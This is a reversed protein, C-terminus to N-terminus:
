KQFVDFLQHTQFGFIDLKEFEPNRMLIVTQEGSSETITVGTGRATTKQEIKIEAIDGPGPVFIMVSHVTGKGRLQYTALPASISEGKQSVLGESVTLKEVAEENAPVIFFSHDDFVSLAKHTPASVVKVPPFHFLVEYGHEQESVFRDHLVLIKDHVLALSRSWAVSANATETSPSVMQCFTFTEKEIWDSIRNPTIRKPAWLRDSSTAEDSKGDIVVTNHARTTRYWSVLKPNDYNCCGSDILVARHNHWLTFGLRGAHAHAGITKAPNALVYWNSESSRGRMIAIQTQPFYESVTSHVTEPHELIENLTALTPLMTMEYSDNVSPMTGDPQAVTSLFHAMRGLMPVLNVPLPVHNQTCLLYTDRFIHTEFPYYGFMQEVNGGDNYFANNLHHTLIRLANTKLAEAEEMEPFLVGLYLMALAGHSQHNFENLKQTGFGSLLVRAHQNLSNLLLEKQQCSLAQRTLFYCWSWHIVRWAAQMDRWNATTRSSDSLLPNDDVWRTVWQMMDNLYSVEGTLYFLRAFSPLFYFRNLWVSKEIEAAEFRSWEPPDGYVGSLLGSRIKRVIERDEETNLLGMQIFMGGQDKPIIEGIEFDKLYKFFPFVVEGGPLKNSNSVLPIGALEFGLTLGAGGAVIDKLFKRRDRKM